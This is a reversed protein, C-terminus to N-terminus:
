KRSQQTKQSFISTNKKIQEETIDQNEELWKSYCERSCFRARDKRSPVVEFEEGCVECKKTKKRKWAPNNEGSLKESRWKLMCEQSCFRATEKRSEKVEFEKGCVECKKTIKERWNPNNSGELNQHYESNRIKEKAEKTHHKGHFPHNKGKMNESMWKGQCEKSCFSASDKRYPEVEFEKGCQKCGKTIM